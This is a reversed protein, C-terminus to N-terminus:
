FLHTYDNVMSFSPLFSLAAKLLSVRELATGCPELTPGSNRTKGEQSYLVASNVRYASCEQVTVSCNAHFNVKAQKRFQPNKMKSAKLQDPHNSSSGESM